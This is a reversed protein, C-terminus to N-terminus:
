RHKDGVVECDDVHRIGPVTTDYTINVFMGRRLKSVDLGVGSAQDYPGCEVDDPYYFFGIPESASTARVEIYNAAIRSLRGSYTQNGGWDMLAFYMPLPAVPTEAVYGDCTHIGLSATWQAPAASRPPVVTLQADSCVKGNAEWEVGIFADGGSEVTVPRVSPLDRGEPNVILKGLIPVHVALFSPESAVWSLQGRVDRNYISTKGRVVRIEAYGEMTCAAAGTNHLELDIAWHGM